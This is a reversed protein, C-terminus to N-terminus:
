NINTFQLFALKISVLYHNKNSNHYQNPIHLYFIIIHYITLTSNILRQM